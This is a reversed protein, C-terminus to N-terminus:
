RATVTWLSCLNWFPMQCHVSPFTISLESLRHFELSSIYGQSPTRRYSQIYHWGIFNLTLDSTLCPQMIDRIRKRTTISQICLCAVDSLLRPMCHVINLWKSFRSKASSRASIYPFLVWRCSFVSLSFLYVLCVPSLMLVFSVLIIVMLGVDSGM